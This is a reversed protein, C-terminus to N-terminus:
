TDDMGWGGDGALFRSELIKEFSPRASVEVRLCARVLAAADGLAGGGDAEEGDREKGEGCREDLAISAAAFPSELGEQAEAATTFPCEGVLLVYAVVGFAWVDQEKGQYREGRLIEPGAYDLTGSFTDWGSKKVLGSSGFDILVCQGGNGLVVNEDKIDRHVIGKGHLFFLADAIQGLYSRAASAPLGQPYSEVLDFLDSPPSPEDPRTDPTTCPMLLYYYNDDEFFDLLPCINPHGKVVKGELWDSSALSSPSESEVDTDSSAPSVDRSISFRAPDWPRRSPLIYSTSSIANMVYIEIPITGYQPHKKWCDALIRSKFVQKIILPPGLTGDDHMERARKVLGYAGRGIEREIVFETISRGSGLYSDRERGPTPPGVSSAVSLVSRASGTRVLKQPALTPVVPTEVPLISVRGAILSVRQQSSRRRPRPTTSTRGLSPKPSPCSSSLPTPPRSSSLPSFSVPESTFSSTAIPLTSIITPIPRALDSSSISKPPSQSGNSRDLRDTESHLGPPEHFDRYPDEQAREEKKKWDFGRGMITVGWSNGMSAARYLKGPPAAWDDDDFNLEITPTALMPNRHGIDLSISRTSQRLSPKEQIDLIYTPATVCRWHRSHPKLRLPHLIQPLSTGTEDRGDVAKGRGEQAVASAAVCTGGNDVSISREGQLPFLTRM